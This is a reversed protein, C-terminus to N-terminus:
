AKTFTEYRCGDIMEWFSNDKTFRLRYFPLGELLDFFLTLFKSHPYIRQIGELSLFNGMVGEKMLEIVAAMRSIPTVENFDNKGIFYIGKCQVGKNVSESDGVFPTGFLWKKKNEDRKLLVMEDCLITRPRSLKAITSKGHGSPGAFIYGKEGDAIGCAHIFTGLGNLGFYLIYSNSIFTEILEIIRVPTFKDLERVSFGIEGEFRESDLVMTAYVTDYELSHYFLKGTFNKTSPVLGEKVAIRISPVGEPCFGWRRYDALIVEFEDRFFRSEFDMSCCVEGIEITLQREIM